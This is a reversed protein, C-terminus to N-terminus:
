PWFSAFRSQGLRDTMENIKKSANPYQECYSALEKLPIELLEEDGEIRPLVKMMLIQDCSTQFIKNWDASKDELWLQYFYLMLENQVRYAVKFPTGDLTGNLNTLFAAVEGKLWETIEANDAALEKVVESAKTETALYLSPSIPNSRYVLESSNNFFDMFPNIATGDANFGEPLNMEITM